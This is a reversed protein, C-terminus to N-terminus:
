RKERSLVSHRKPSGLAQESNQKEQLHYHIRPIKIKKNHNCHLKALPKLYKFYSEM